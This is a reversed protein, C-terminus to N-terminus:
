DGQWKLEGTYYPNLDNTYLDSAKTEGPALFGNRESLTIWFDIDKPQVWHYSPYINGAMNKVDVKLFDAEKQLAEDYHDDIYQQAKLDAVIYAKIVDPYKQIFDDSFARVALGGAVGNGAAEGIRYSTTLIDLGGHNKAIMNYPPHLIAVDILGQRIAQEQQEDRMVVVNVQDRSIGNQRLFEANLLEACSGTGSMAIKKGVLDKGSRIPGGSKVFWTMHLKDFDPSDVMSTLVIKIKAGAQRANAITLPHGSGFLDNDGKIVSQALLNSQIVGTYEPVIGVEKFYGNVDAIIFENFGTFTPTKLHFEKTLKGNVFKPAEDDANSTKTATSRACGALNLVSAIIALLVALAVLKGKM